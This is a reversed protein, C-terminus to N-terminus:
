FRSCGNSINLSPTNFAAPLLYTTVHLIHHCMGEAVL